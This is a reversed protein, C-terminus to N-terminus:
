NREMLEIVFLSSLILSHFFNFDNKMMECGM